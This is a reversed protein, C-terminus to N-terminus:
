GVGMVDVVRDVWEVFNLINARNEDQGREDLDLKRVGFGRQRYFGGGIRSFWSV